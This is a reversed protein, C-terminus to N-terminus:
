KLWKIVTATVYINEDNSEDAYKQITKIIIADGGHKCAEEKLKPLVEEFSAYGFQGESEIVGLERYKRDPAKSNFVEINCNDPKAAASSGTQIFNASPGCGWNFLIIFTLSIFLFFFNPINFNKALFKKKIM